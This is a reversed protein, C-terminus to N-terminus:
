APCIGYRHCPASDITDCVRRIMPAVMDGDSELIKIVSTEWPSVISRIILSTTMSISRYATSAGLRLRAASIILSASTRLLVKRLLQPTTECLRVEEVSWISLLSYFAIAEISGQFYPVLSCDIAFVVPLSYGAPYVSISGRVNRCVWLRNAICRDRRIVDDCFMRAHPKLLTKHYCSPFVAEDYVSLRWVM